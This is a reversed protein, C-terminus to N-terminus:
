KGLGFNAKKDAKFAQFQLDSVEMRGVVIKLDNEATLNFAQLRVCRYSNGLTTNFHEQKHVLKM